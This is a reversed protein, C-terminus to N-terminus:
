YGGRVAEYNNLMANYARFAPYPTVTGSAKDLRSPNRDALGLACTRLM